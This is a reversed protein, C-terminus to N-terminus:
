TGLKIGKLTVGSLNGGGYYVAGTVTITVNNLGSSTVPAHASFTQTLTPSYTGVGYVHPPPNQLTSSSADGFDWFYSLTTGYSPTFSTNVFTVTFPSTSTLTGGIQSNASYQVYDPITMQMDLYAAAAPSINVDTYLDILSKTM